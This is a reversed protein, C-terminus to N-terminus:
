ITSQLSPDYCPRLRAFHPKIINFSIFDGVGFCCVSLLIFVVAYQRCYRIIYYLLFAYLPIWTTDTRLLIFFGDLAPIAGKVNVLTFLQKDIENLRQLIDM